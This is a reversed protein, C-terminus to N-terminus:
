SGEYFLAIIVVLLYKVSLLPQCIYLPNLLWNPESVLFILFIKRESYALLCEHIVSTLLFMLLSAILLHIEVDASSQSVFADLQSASLVQWRLPVDYLVAWRVDIHVCIPSLLASLVLWTFNCAVRYSLLWNCYRSQINAGLSIWGIDARFVSPLMM